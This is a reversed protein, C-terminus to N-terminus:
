RHQSSLLGLELSEEEKTTKSIEADELINGVLFGPEKEEEMRYILRPGSEGSEKRLSGACSPPHFLSLAGVLIGMIVVGNLM